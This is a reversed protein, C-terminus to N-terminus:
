CNSASECQQWIRNSQLKVPPQPAQSKAQQVRSNYLKPVDQFPQPSPFEDVSHFLSIFRMEFSSIKGTNSSRMSSNRVPPTPAGGSNSFNNILRNQIVSPPPPAPNLRHPPPPPAVTPPPPPACMPPSLAVRTSPPPPPKAQPARLTSGHIRPRPRLTAHANNISSGWSVANLPTRSPSTSGNNRQSPSLSEQSQHFLPLENKHSIRHLESENGHKVENMSISSRPVRMSQARSVLRDTKASVTIHTPPKPALSPKGHSIVHHQQHFHHRDDASRNQYSNDSLSVASSSRSHLPLGNTTDADSSFIKPPLGPPQPPPGRSKTISSTSFNSHSNKVNNSSIKNNVLSNSKPVDNENRYQQYAQGIASGTAKLKPIGNVFLGGLGGTSPSVENSSRNNTSTRTTSVNNTNSSLTSNGGIVPASKDNTVTKKLKTGKRISDLLLSRGDDGAMSKASFNPPAPAPPPPPPPPPAAM